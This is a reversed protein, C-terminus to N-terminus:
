VEGGNLIKKQFVIYFERPQSRGDFVSVGTQRLQYRLINRVYKEFMDATNIILPKFEIDAQEGITIGVGSLITMALNLAPIYYSRQAPIKGHELIRIVDHWDTPHLPENKLPSFYALRRAIDNTSTVQLPVNLLYRLCYLLLRNEPTSFPRETIIQCIKTGYSQPYILLSGDVDMKGSLSSSVVTKRKEGRLLGLARIRDVQKLFAMILAEFFSELNEGSIQYPVTSEFPTQLSHNLLGSQLLLYTLDSISAKPRIQIIYGRAAPIVGAYNGVRLWYNGNQYIPTIYRESGPLLINPHFDSTEVPTSQAENVPIVKFTTM